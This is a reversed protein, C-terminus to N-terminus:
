AGPLATAVFSKADKAHALPQYGLLDETGRLISYPNLVSSIRKGRTAFPSLVLAGTPTPGGGPAAGSLAFVIVIAGDHKYTASHEIRPVWQRLFADEGALGAPKGDPCSQASGDECSGPAIFSFTPTSSASHLDHPLKTLSVDNSACGGLDLLSHFYIFPNHRTAYDAGAGPLQANDAAGSNPHVCTAPTLDDIYGRWAHGSATVQDAITTITNPYVCGSGPVQGDSAPKAGAAFESYTACNGETDPNPAQGSILALYDSLEASGLTEYGGLFAGAPKLTRNLYRAVSGSGWAADFSPTSLAIVFVHGIKQRPGGTTAPTTSTSGAVAGSSVGGASSSSTPSNAAASTPGGGVPGAAPVASAASGASPDGSGGTPGASLVTQPHALAARAAQQAASEGLAGTVILVSALASLGAVAALQPRSVRVARMSAIM